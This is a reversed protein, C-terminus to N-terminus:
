RIAADNWASPIGVTPWCAMRSSGVRNDGSEYSKAGANQIARIDPMRITQAVAGNDSIIKAGENLHIIGGVLRVGLSEDNPLGLLM